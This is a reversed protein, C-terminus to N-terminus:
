KTLIRFLIEGLAIKERNINDGTIEIFPNSTFNIGKYCAQIWLNLLAKEPNEVDFEDKLTYLFAMCVPEKKLINRLTSKAFFYKIADSFLEDKTKYHHFISGRTKHIYKEIDEISITDWFQASLMKVCSRLLTEKSKSIKNDLKGSM